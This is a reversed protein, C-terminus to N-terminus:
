PKLLAQLQRMQADIFDCSAQPEPLSDAPPPLTIRAIQDPESACIAAGIVLWRGREFAPNQSPQPKDGYQQQAMELQAEGIGGFSTAIGARQQGAYIGALMATTEPDVAIPLARMRPQESLFEVLQPSYEAYAQDLSLPGDTGPSLILWGVLLAAAATGLGGVGALWHRWRKPQHRGSISSVNTDSTEWCELDTLLQQWQSYLESNNALHSIVQQRRELPLRNDLLAALDENDPEPGSATSAEAIALALRALYEQQQEDRDATM